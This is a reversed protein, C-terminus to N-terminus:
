GVPGTVANIYGGEVGGGTLFGARYGYAAGDHQKRQQSARWIAVRPACKRLSSGLRNSAGKKEM